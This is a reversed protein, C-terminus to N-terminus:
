NTSEFQNGRPPQVACSSASEEIIALADFFRDLLIAELFKEKQADPLLKTTVWYQYKSILGFRGKYNYNNYNLEYAKLISLCDLATGARAHFDPPIASLMPAAAEPLPKSPKRPKRSAHLEHWAFPPYVGQDLFVRYKAPDSAVAQAFEEISQFDLDPYQAFVEFLFCLKRDFHQLIPM